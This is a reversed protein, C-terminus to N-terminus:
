LNTFLQVVNKKSQRNGPTMQQSINQHPSIGTPIWGISSNRSEPERRRRAEAPLGPGSHCFLIKSIPEILKVSEESRRRIYYVLSYFFELFVTMRDRMRPILIEASLKRQATLDRFVSLGQFLNLAVPDTRSSLIV